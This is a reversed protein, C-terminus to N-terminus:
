RAATSAPLMAVNDNVAADPSSPSGGSYCTTSANASDRAMGSTRQLRTAPQGAGQARQVAPHGGGGPVPGSLGPQGTTGDDRRRQRATKTWRRRTTPATSIGQQRSTLLWTLRPIEPYREGTSGCRQGAGAQLGAPAARSRWPRANPARAPIRRRQDPQPLRRPFLLKRMRQARPPSQRASRASATASTPHRLHHHQHPHPDQENPFRQFCAASLKVPLGPLGTGRRRANADPLGRAWRADVPSGGHEAAVQQGEGDGGSDDREIGNDARSMTSISTM